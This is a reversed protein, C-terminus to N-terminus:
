IKGPKWKISNEICIKDEESLDVQKELLLVVKKKDPM